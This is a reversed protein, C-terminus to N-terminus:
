EKLIDIVDNYTQARVVGEEAIIDQMAQKLVVDSKEDLSNYYGTPQTSAVTGYTPNIPTGFPAVQFDNDVVRIRLNNNLSYNPSVLGSLKILMEEDGEDFVDDILTISTSATNTGNPITI